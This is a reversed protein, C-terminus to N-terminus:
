IDGKTHSQAHWLKAYQGNLALLQQHNGREALEGNALLIIEDADVVTSLRHAIVLTTHGKSVSKLTNMIQAENHSDLSSTAEDFIFIASNKLLTRAIAVRQKEGGSLKLGREGVETQVGKPLAAVFDGLQADNIAQIVQEDTAELDGYRVNELISNNFLVTDQPVIGIQKRLSDITLTSINQGDIQISGSEIDYFRYLLKTLTSKGAGSPGVIAVKKGGAISFSLNKIIERGKGYSFCVNDFRVAGQRLVLSQPDSQEKIATPQALLDFMNEINTLSGKIERYVFGLFNLPMFIQMMFANVLVFDGITMKGQEVDLAALVLMATMALAIILAQGANLNFLSLRNSRRANEWDALAKDYSREEHPENNFYKVTEFNLLSDLARSNSQNDALNAERIYKLRWNTVKITFFVYAVVALAIICAYKLGYNVSLIGIVFALEIITPGINFVFFRMVFSIGSVGREIDRALGGTKRSLHFDLDLQHLHSFVQLGIRRMARETVRGFLMDRLEGFLVNAFRVLGYAVVLGLPAALLASHPQGNLADVAYKLIFPLAVSALKAFVLCLFALIIRHKFELLYPWVKKFVALNFSDNENPTSFGHRM